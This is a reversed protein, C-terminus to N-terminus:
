DRAAFISKFLRFVDSIMHSKSFESGTSETELRTGISRTKLHIWTRLIQTRQLASSNGMARACNKNVLQGNDTWCSAELVPDNPIDISSFDEANSGSLLGDDDNYDILTADEPLDQLALLDSSSDQFTSLDSSSDQFLDVQSIAITVFITMSFVFLRFRMIIIIIINIIVSFLLCSLSSISASFAVRWASISPFPNRPDQQEGDHIRTVARGFQSFPM